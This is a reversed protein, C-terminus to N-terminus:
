DQETPTGGEPPADNPDDSGASAPVGAQESASKASAGPNRVIFTIDAPLTNGPESQGGDDCEDLGISYVICEESLPVYRLPQGDFPDFPIAQLYEPVLQDLQEPFEGYQRRHQEAALGVEATMMSATTRLDAELAATFSPLAYNSIPHHLRALLSGFAESQMVSLDSGLKARRQCPVLAMADLMANHMRLLCTLDEAEVITAIAQAGGLTETRAEAALVPSQFCAIGYVRQGLMADRLRDTSWGRRLEMQFDTLEKDTFDVQPMLSEIAWRASEVINVVRFYSVLTPENALARGLAFMACISRAAGSADGNRARVWAELLLLRAGAELLQVHDGMWGDNGLAYNTPFRSAGGQETAEHMLRLSESYNTLLRLAAEEEAWPEGRPPVLTNNGAVFPLGNAAVSYAPLKLPRIANLWLETVNENPPPYKYLAELDAPTVPEGAARIRAFEVEVRRSHVISRAWHIAVASGAVVVAGIALRWGFGLKRRKPPTDGESDLDRPPMADLM